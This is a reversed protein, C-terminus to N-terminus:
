GGSKNAGSTRVEAVSQGSNPLYPPAGLASFGIIIGADGLFLKKLDIDDLLTVANRIVCKWSAPPLTDDILLGTVTRHSGSELVTSTDHYFMQRTLSSLQGAVATEILGAITAAAGDDAAGFKCANAFGSSKMLQSKFNAHYINM